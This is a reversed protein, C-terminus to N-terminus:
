ARMDEEEVAADFFDDELNRWLGFIRAFDKRQNEHLFKIGSNLKYTVIIKGPVDWKKKLFDSLPLYKEDAYFHDHVNGTLFITSSQLSNITRGAESLFDYKIDNM